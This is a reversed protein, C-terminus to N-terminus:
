DLRELEAPLELPPGRHALIESLQEVDSAALHESAEGDRDRLRAIIEARLLDIQGHLIRRKFSVERESQTREHIRERLEDDSLEGADDAEDGTPLPDDDAQVAAGRAGAHAAGRLRDGPDVEVAGQREKLRRTHESRLLDIRGHLERRRRSVDREDAMKEETLLRSIPTPSPPSTPSHRWSACDLRKASRGGPTSTSSPACPGERQRSLRRGCRAFAGARGLFAGAALERQAAAADHVRPRGHAGVHRDQRPLDVSLEYGHRAASGIGFALVLDRGIILMPALLPLRGHYWLLIVASDILLRDALPDALRGFRSFSGYRRALWGDFWDTLSALGFIVFALVSHGNEAELLVWWFLPLVALRAITLTNPLRALWPHAALSSEAPMTRPSPVLAALPAAPASRGRQGGPARRGRAPHLAARTRRGPRAASRGQPEAAHANPLDRGASLVLPVYAEVGRKARVEGILRVRILPADEPLAGLLLELLPRAFREFAIAAAVPYGPIGIVPTGEVVGLAVPHAPRLAVGHM